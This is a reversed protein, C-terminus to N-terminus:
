ENCGDVECRKCEGKGGLIPIKFLDNTLILLCMAFVSYIVCFPVSYIAPLGSFKCIAPGALCGMNKQACTRLTFEALLCLVFM